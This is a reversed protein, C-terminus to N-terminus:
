RLSKKAESFRMEHKEIKRRSRNTKRSSNQAESRGVDVSCRGGLGGMEVRMVCGGM